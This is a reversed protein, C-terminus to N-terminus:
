SVFSPARVPAATRHSFQWRTPLDPPATTFVETCTNPPQTEQLDLSALTSLLLLIPAPPTLRTQETKYHSHEAVCSGDRECDSDPKAASSTEHSDCSLFEFSALSELPCHATVGLWLLALAASLIKARSRVGRYIGEINSNNL